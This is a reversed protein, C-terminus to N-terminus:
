VHNQEAEFWFNNELFQALFHDLPELVWFWVLFAWPSIWFFTKKDQPEVTIGLKRGRLHGSIGLTLGCLHGSNKSRTELQFFLPRSLPLSLPRPFFILPRSLPRSLKTPAIILPNAPPPTTFLM